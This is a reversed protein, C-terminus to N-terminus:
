DNVVCNVLQIVNLSMDSNAMEGAKGAKGATLRAGPGIFRKPWSHHYGPQQLKANPLGIASALVGLIGRFVDIDALCLPTM